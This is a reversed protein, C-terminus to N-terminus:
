GKSFYSMTIFDNNNNSKYLGDAFSESDIPLSFEMFSALTYLIQMDDDIKRLLNQKYERAGTEIRANATELLSRNLYQTILGGCLFFLIGAAIVIFTM